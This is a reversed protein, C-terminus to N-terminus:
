RVLLRHHRSTVPQWPEHAVQDHYHMQMSHLCAALLVAFLLGMILRRWDRRLRIHFRLLHVSDQRHDTVWTHQPQGEIESIETAACV